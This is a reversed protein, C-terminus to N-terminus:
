TKPNVRKKEFKKLLREAEERSGRTATTSEKTRELYVIARAILKQQIYMRAINLNADTDGMSIARHFWWLARKFKGRDRWITGINNAAFQSNDKYSRMYWRLAERFDTDVGIGYDFCEAVVDVARPEGKQASVLFLSFALECNGKRRADWADMYLRSATKHSSTKHSRGSNKM